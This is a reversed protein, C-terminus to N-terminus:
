AARRPHLASRFRPHNLYAEAKEEVKAKEEASVVGAHLLCMAKLKMLRASPADEIPFIRNLDVTM